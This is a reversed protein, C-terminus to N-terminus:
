RSTTRLNSLPFVITVPWLELMASENQLLIMSVVGVSAAAAPAITVVASTKDLRDNMFLLIVFQALYSM